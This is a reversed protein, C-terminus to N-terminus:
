NLPLQDLCRAARRGARRCNLYVEAVAAEGDLLLRCRNRERALERVCDDYARREIPEVQPRPSQPGGGGLPVALLAPIVLLAALLVGLRRWTHGQRRAPSPMGRSRERSLVPEDEFAVFPPPEDDRADGDPPPREHRSM